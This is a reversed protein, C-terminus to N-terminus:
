TIKSDQVGANKMVEDSLTSNAREFQTKGYDFIPDTIPKLTISNDLHTLVEMMLAPWGTFFRLYALVQVVNM